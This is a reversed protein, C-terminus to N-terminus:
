LLRQLIFGEKCNVAGEGLTEMNEFGLPEKVCAAREFGSFISLVDKDTM